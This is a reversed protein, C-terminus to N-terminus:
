FPIDVYETNDELESELEQILADVENYDKFIINFEENFEYINYDDHKICEFDKILQDRYCKYARLTTKHINFDITFNYLTAAWRIVKDEGYFPHNTYNDFKFERSSHTYSYLELRGIKIEM